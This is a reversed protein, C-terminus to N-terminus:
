YNVSPNDFSFVGASSPRPRRLPLPVFMCYIVVRAHGPSLTIAVGVISHAAAVWRSSLYSRGCIIRISHFHSWGSACVHDVFLSVFTPFCCKVPVFMPSVKRLGLNTFYRDHTCRLVPPRLSFGVSLVFCGCSDCRFWRPQLWVCTNFQVRLM